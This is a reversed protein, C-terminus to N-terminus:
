PNTPQENPEGQNLQTTTEDPLDLPTTLVSETGRTRKKAKRDLAQEVWSRHTLRYNAASRKVKMKWMWHRASAPKIGLFDAVDNVNWWDDNGARMKTQKAITETPNM